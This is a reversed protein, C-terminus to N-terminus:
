QWYSRITVPGILGSPVMWPKWGGGYLPKDKLFDFQSFYNALTNVVSIRLTNPGKRLYRTLDFRYPTWLREGVFGGNLWVKAAVGVRGLDLVYTRGRLSTRSTLRKRM